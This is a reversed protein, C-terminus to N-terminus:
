SMKEELAAVDYTNPIIDEWPEAHMVDGRRSPHCPSQDSFPPISVQLDTEARGLREGGEHHEDRPLNPRLM